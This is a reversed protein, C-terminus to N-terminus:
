HAPAGRPPPAGARTQVCVLDMWKTRYYAHAAAGAAASKEGGGSRITDKAAPIDGRGFAAYADQVLKTNQENQMTLEEAGM